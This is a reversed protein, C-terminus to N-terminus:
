APKRSRSVRCTSTTSTSRSRENLEAIQERMADLKEAAETRIRAMREADMSDLVVTIARDMWDQRAVEVRRDLDFDYFTSLTSRAVQRLLEPRLTALADIETQEVGLSGAM